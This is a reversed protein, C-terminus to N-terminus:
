AEGHFIFPGVSHCYLPSVLTLVSQFDSLISSTDQVLITVPTLFFPTTNSVIIYFQYPKLILPSPVDTQLVTILAMAPFLDCLFLAYVTFLLIGLLSEQPCSPLTHFGHPPLSLAAILLSPLDPSLAMVNM